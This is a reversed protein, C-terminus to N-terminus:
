TGNKAPPPSLPQPAPSTAGSGTTSPPTVNRMPAGAGTTMPPTNGAGNNATNTGGSNWGAIVIFAILAVVALGAIWGWVGGVNEGRRLVPDSIRPDNFRPDTFRPDSM